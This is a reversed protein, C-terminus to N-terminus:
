LSWFESTRAEAIEDETAIHVPYFNPYGISIFITRGLCQKAHWGGAHPSMLRALATPGGSYKIIDGEKFESM